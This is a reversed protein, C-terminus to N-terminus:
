KSLLYFPFAVSGSKSHIQSLTAISGKSFGNISPNSMFSLGDWHDSEQGAGHSAIRTWQDALYPKLILDDATWHQLNFAHSDVLDTSIPSKVQRQSESSLMKISRLFLGKCGVHQGASQGPSVLVLDGLWHGHHLILAVMCGGVELDDEVSWCCLHLLLPEADTGFPEANKIVLTHLHGLPKFDKPVYELFFIQLFWSM